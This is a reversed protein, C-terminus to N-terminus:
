KLKAEQQNLIYGHQGQYLLCKKVNTFSHPVLKMTSKPALEVLISKLLHEDGDEKKKIKHPVFYFSPAHRQERLKAEEHKLGKPSLRTLEVAM